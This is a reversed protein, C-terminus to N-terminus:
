QLDEDTRTLRQWGAATLRQLPKANACTWTSSLELGGVGRIFAKWEPASPNSNGKKKELHM